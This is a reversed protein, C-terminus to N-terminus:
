GVRDISFEIAPNRPGMVGAGKVGSVCCPNSRWPTVQGKLWCVANGIAGTPYSFSWARCRAERDCRSACVAPDGFRVMFNAYDAGPRDFGVQAGAPAALALLLLFAGGLRPCATRLEGSESPFRCRLRPTRWNRRRFALAISFGMLVREVETSHCARAERADHYLVRGSLAIGPDSPPAFTDCRDVAGLVHHFGGICGWDASNPKRDSATTSSAVATILTGIAWLIRSEAM